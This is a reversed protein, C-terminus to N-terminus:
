RDAGDSNMMNAQQEKKRMGFNYRVNLGVRRTDSQRYGNAKVTGQNLAFINNNTFFMDTINITAILKRNLFQRNVSASLQGFSGLEYFNQQGKQIMFGNLNLQSLKDIKLSHFTFFRWSGRKFALPTNEYIGNYNNYNYQAGVVFFYRGGPPIGAVMRAYTERNTGLNDYTRIAVSRSTNAQYIVNSFIDKTNNVGLALVPFDDFSINVEYNCTFQPRLNPNGQENLYQDIFRPFPNLFDYNPRSISKRYIAYARLPMKGITVVNKSLYLYPFADTRRITFNSLSPITQQGVMNTNEVRVGLKLVADKGFTKSTQAYIANINEKYNFTNTRKADAINQGTQQKFFNTKNNFNLVSTKVGTEFTLKYKLKKIFDTQAIFFNRKTNINGNGFNGFIIPTLFNTGYKQITKNFNQNYSVDATVESGASDIKYKANIGQNYSFNLNANNINTNNNSFINSTSIKQLVSANYTNGESKVGSLRADYSLTFKKTFDKSIGLGIYISKAPSLTTATQKLISDTNFIRDTNLEDYAKRKAFQITAYSSVKNNNNNINVGVNQNGYQGQNFGANVSGTLGIKVGKKLIVNVVGGSSAADIKASPTRLIEIKDIANPPLSKLMTAVDASSMKMERGNIFVTAPTTSSIYINGDPDVFLGPAKEIVEFGNTSTEALSEANIITKDDVQQMIPKKKSKIVIDDSQKPLLTFSFAAENNILVGKSTNDFGTGAANINYTSGKQLNIIAVGKKNTTAKLASSDAIKLITFIINELPKGTKNFAKLQIPLAQAHAIIVNLVLAYFLLTFKM